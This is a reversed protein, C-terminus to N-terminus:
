LVWFELEAVVCRGWGKRILFATNTRLGLKSTVKWVM